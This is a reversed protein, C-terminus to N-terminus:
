YDATLLFYSTLQAAPDQVTWQLYYTTPPSYSHRCPGSARQSGLCGRSRAAARRCCCRSLALTLDLTLTHAAIPTLTPTLGGAQLLLAHPMGPVAEAQLGWPEAALSAVM